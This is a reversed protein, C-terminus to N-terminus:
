DIAPAAIRFIELQRDPVGVGQGLLKMEVGGADDRTVRRERVVHQAVLHLQLRAFPHQHHARGAPERTEDDLDGLMEARADDGGGPGIMMDLDREAEAGLVADVIALLIQGGLHHLEGAAFACLDHALIDAIGLQERFGEGRERHAPPEDRGAAMAAADHRQVDEIEIGLVRGDIAAGLLCGLVHDLAEFGRGVAMQRRQDILDQRERLRDARMLDDFAAAAGAFHQQRQISAPPFMFAMTMRSNPPGSTIRISSTGVGSGPGPSSSTWTAATETLRVSSIMTRLPLYARGTFSGWTSPTSGVPVTTASPSPTFCRLSPSRMQMEERRTTRLGPSGICISPM